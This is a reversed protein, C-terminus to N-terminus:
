YGLPLTKVPGVFRLSDAVAKDKIGHVALAGNRVAQMAEHLIVPTDIANRSYGVSRLSVGAKLAALAVVRDGFGDENIWDMESLLRAFTPGTAVWPAHPYTPAIFRPDTNTCVYSGALEGEEVNISGFIMVDPESVAACPYKSAEELARRMRQISLPGFHQAKGYVIDAGALPEDEPTLIMVKPIFAEWTPRTLKIIEADFARACVIIVEPTM